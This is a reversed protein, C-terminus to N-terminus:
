RTALAKHNGFAQQTNDYVRSEHDIKRVPVLKQLEARRLYASAFMWIGILLPPVLTERAIIHTVIAGGLYGTLLFTGMISTRPILYLALCSLELIGIPLIAADPLGAHTLGAVVKPIHALKSIGSGLLALTVLAALGNGVWLRVKLISQTSKSTM